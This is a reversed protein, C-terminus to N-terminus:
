FKKLLKPIFAIAAAFLLSIKALFASTGDGSTKPNTKDDGSSTVPCPTEEARSTQPSWVSPTDESSTVPPPPAIVTTTASPPAYITPTTVPPAFTTPAFTTPAFVTTPGATTPLVSPPPETPSFSSPPPETPSTPPPETLSPETPATESPSSSPPSPEGGKVIPINEGKSVDHDPYLDKLGANIYMCSETAITFSVSGGDEVGDKLKFRVTFLVGDGTQNDASYWTARVNEVDEGANGDINFLAGAFPSPGSSASVPALVSRDYNMIITYGAIGPNNKYSVTVEIEGNENFSGAELTVTGDASDAKTYSDFRSIVVAAAIFILVAAAILLRYKKV